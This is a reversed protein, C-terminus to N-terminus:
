SKWAANWRKRTRIRAEILRLVEAREKATVHARSFADFREPPLHLAEGVLFAAEADARPVGLLVATGSWGLMDTAARILAPHGVCEFVYDAGDRLLGKVLAVVDQGSPDIFDTAGFRRAAEEKGPNTDVAIIRSARAIRAGQIANLGIGGVGIVVVTQGLLEPERVTSM